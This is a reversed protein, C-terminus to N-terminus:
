LTLWLVVVAVVAVAVVGWVNRRLWSQAVVTDAKAASAVVGAEDNAMAKAEDLYKQTNM